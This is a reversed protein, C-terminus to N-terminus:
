AGYALDDIAFGGDFAVQTALNLRFMLRNISIL